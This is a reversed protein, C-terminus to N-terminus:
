TDQEEALENFFQTGLKDYFKIKQQFEEETLRENPNHHFKASTVFAHDRELTDFLEKYTHPKPLHDYTEKKKKDTVVLDHGFGGFGNKHEFIYQPYLQNLELIADHVDEQMYNDLCFNKSLSNAQEMKELVHFEKILQQPTIKKM